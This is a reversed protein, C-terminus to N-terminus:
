WTEAKPVCSKTDKLRHVPQVMQEMVLHLKLLGVRASLRLYIMIPVEIGNMAISFLVRM